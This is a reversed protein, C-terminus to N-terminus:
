GNVPVSKSAYGVYSVVLTANPPVNALTFNGDIDTVTGQSANGKVIVTAGIVPEKFTADTITGTVTINQAVLSLSMLWVFALMISKLKQQANKKMM